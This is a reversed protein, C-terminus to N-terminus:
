EEPINSQTCVPSSFLPPLISWIRPFPQWQFSSLFSLCPPPINFLLDIKLSRNLYSSIFARYIRGLCRGQSYSTSQWSKISFDSQSFGRQFYHPQSTRFFTQYKPNTSSFLLREYTRAQVKRVLFLGASSRSSAFTEAANLAPVNLLCRCAFADQCSRWFLMESWIFRNRLPWRLSLAMKWLRLLGFRSCTNNIPWRWSCTCHPSWILAEVFYLGM